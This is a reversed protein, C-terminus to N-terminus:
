RLMRANPLGHRMSGDQDSDADVSGDEDRGANEHTGIGDHNEMEKKLCELCYGWKAPLKELMYFAAQIDRDDNTERGCKFCRM